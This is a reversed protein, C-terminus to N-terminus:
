TILNNPFLAYHEQIKLGMYTTNIYYKYLLINYLFQLNYPKLLFVSLFEDVDRWILSRYRRKDGRDKKMRNIRFISVSRIHIWFKYYTHVQENSIERLTLIHLYFVINVERWLIYRRMQGLYLAHLHKIMNFSVGNEFIEQIHWHINLECRIELKEENRLFFTEKFCFM